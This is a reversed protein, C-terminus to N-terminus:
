QVTFQVVKMAPRAKEPDYTLVQMVVPDGKQLKRAAALFAKTDSVSVRNIRQILDGTGLAASIGNASKVEAIFSDPSIEKVLAGKQGELKYTAALTATLDGV